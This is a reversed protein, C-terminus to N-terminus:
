AWKGKAGYNPTIAELRTILPLITVPNLASVAIADFQRCLDRLIQKHPFLDEKNFVMVTPKSALDLKELIGEVAKIHSEFDPNSVDTVHLLVDADNLEDLTARFAAFLEQPLDRIFGVTDTVVAETDRPFRLRSSKPDLTAFLRDETFVSSKTLANLLTSKGANTYGVISIVPLGTRQRTMRRQGRAKEVNRIERELHHIRDRVRRRNIELKTEGPGRGGIGGTLRSMATNKTVLRPLLYKLQALEVQIKGERSHARRAFIDLILQTRDIVKMEAIDTISRVQAPTLERDFILLGAGLQLARIVLESIKGKGLLFRPDVQKRHQLISALVDVGASRALEKLEELSSKGDNLPDTEVRILIAGGASEVKGPKQKKAFEGELAQIFELFDRGMESPRLPERILWFRGEPNEPILHATHVYGPLGVEDTEIAGILDLRLLALDTLDDESLTEGDLHTHLLRLGKFRASSSRFGELSPIVVERHSGAIVHTIEGRRSILVGIQRNIERSLETLQRALEQSLIIEPPVRRRSLQEIRKIQEPGLGKTNGYIKTLSARKRELNSKLCPM